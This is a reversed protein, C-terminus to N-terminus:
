KSLPEALIESIQSLPLGIITDEDGIISEILSRGTEQLRYSGAAGKWEGNELYSEIMEEDLQKFVVTTEATGSYLKNQYYLAWGSYVTHSNGSFRSLQAHAHTKDIPKGILEGDFSILTDCSLVPKEGMAHSALYAQMKRKALMLVVAAPDTDDHSEDCNTPCVTVEVGESQLLKKRAISGSALIISPFMTAFDAM